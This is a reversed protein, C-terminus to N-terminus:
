PGHRRPTRAQRSRRGVRSSRRCIRRTPPLYLLRVRRRALVQQSGVAKQTALNDLVVIDGPTLTSRLGHTVYARFVKADTADEVAVMAQLGQPGLTAAVTVNQAYNQPVSGVVRERKPAHEYLHTM